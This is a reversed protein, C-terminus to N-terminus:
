LQWQNMWLDMLHGDVPGIKRMSDSAKQGKETRIDFKPYTTTAFLRRYVDLIKLAPKDEFDADSPNEVADLHAIWANDDVAEVPFRKQITPILSEWPVVTPNVLNFLSTGTEIECARCSDAIELVITTLMDVPIWNIPVQGLNQPIHGITKSTAILSPLWEQKNWIGKETTPGGLQGVRYITVPLGSRSSAAACVREAVHKAEAYGQLPVMSAEEVIAEPVGSKYENKTGWRGVTSISSIFHFHAENECEIGLALLHSLGMIEIGEFDALSKNFNVNWACHFITDVSRKLENYKPPDLGLLEPGLKFQVFEVKSLASPTISIGKEEFSRCQRSLVDESRNLCFIRRVKPDSILKSLLYTGLTGTSGTLLVTQGTGDRKKTIRIPNTPFRSTFRKVSSEFIKSRSQDLVPGSEIGGTGGTAVSHMFEAIKAINACFYLRQSTIAEVHSSPYYSHLAGQLIKVLRLSQLSDLGQLSLDVTESIDETHLISSVAQRVYKSFDLTTADSPLTGVFEMDPRAYIEEIEQAYDFAVQRRSISGKPSTKFPKAKSAMGLKSRFLKGHGPALRNAEQVVPWIQDLFSNESTEGMQDWKPEVFLSAQFRGQGIIVARSVLAHGEITKEMSTPNFKEGNSLVIVDDLRGEFRWLNPKTPHPSFLDNTPYTYRDPFVHFIGHLDRNSNGPRCIILEYLEKAVPLMQVGYSPNWEFYQWDQKNEAALVPIVGAESSGLFSCPQTKGVLKHGAAPSLPAGSFIVAQLSQLSKLGEESSSLEEIISPPLMASAPRTAKVIQSFLDVTMPRNPFQIFPTAHFISETFMYLGMMHYFPSMSLIPGGGGVSSPMVSTRGLPTALKAINNLASIYGNTLYVRNPNGIEFSGTNRFKLPQILQGTSGSSHIIIAPENEADEFTKSLLFPEANSHLLEWLPPIEWMKLDAKGEKISTADRQREPSFILKSCATEDLMGLTAEVQNRPSPFFAVHGTKLCALIFIAYRIDNAGIYTLPELSKSQGIKNDIWWALYDAARALSKFTVCQWGESIDSSNPHVCFLACPSTAALNDVAHPLLVGCTKPFTIM